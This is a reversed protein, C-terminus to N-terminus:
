HACFSRLFITKHIELMKHKLFLVSLFKFKRSWGFAFFSLLTLLSCNDVFFITFYLIRFQIFLLVQLPLWCCSFGILIVFSMKIVKRKARHRIASLQGSLSFSPPLGSSRHYPFSLKWIISSYVLIMVLLPIFFLITSVFTYYVRKFSNVKVCAGVEASYVSTSPWAELCNTETYDNWQLVFVLM